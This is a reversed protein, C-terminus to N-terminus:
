RFPIVNRSINIVLEGIQAYSCVLPNKIIYLKVRRAERMYVKYKLKPIM